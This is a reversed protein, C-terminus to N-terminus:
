RQKMLSLPVYLIMLVPIIELRGMWMLLILLSKGLWHMSPGTIGVSLGAAGLASATEFLIDVFSYEAPVLPILVFVGTAISAIWLLALAAVDEIQRSAQEPALKRGDVTRLTMQRPSLTMRRLRWSVAELLMLVRNLKLGGVTSGAAGGMIMALSLLLKQHSSWFQLPRTNFGCTTLASIWQFASDIWDPQNIILYNTLAIAVTGVGIVVLLFLHQRNQWLASLKCRSIVQDHVSFSIGGAIMIPIIAVRVIGGYASMNGDTITFGGTSIATMSHNIAEWWTMGVAHFLLLTIGTYAAYIIWIRRVTRNITLKFRTERGEAQYLAYYDQTPNILMIALVIVGVGGIWSMFSRWWQLCTPLQSPRITMTLGTSTFGSFGEFLANLGHKFTSVTPSADPGLVQAILWFPLAGVSAVLAWGIAVSVMTQPLSSTQAKRGARRLLWGLFSAFAATGLFPLIAFWERAIACVLLSILAMGAPIFLFSGVSRSIPALQISM